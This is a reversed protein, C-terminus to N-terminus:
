RPLEKCSDMVSALPTRESHATAVRNRPSLLVWKVLRNRTLSTTRGTTTSNRKRCCLRSTSYDNLSRMTKGKLGRLKASERAWILVRPDLVGNLCKSRSIGLKRSLLLLQAGSALASRSSNISYSRTISISRSIEKM